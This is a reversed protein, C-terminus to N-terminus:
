APTGTTPPNVTTVTFEPGLDISDYIRKLESDGTLQETVGKLTTAIELKVIPPRTISAKKLQLANEMRIRASYGAFIEKLM